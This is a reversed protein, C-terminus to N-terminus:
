PHDCEAMIRDYAQRAHDYAEAAGSRESNRIMPNKVEWLKDVCHRCWEASLRSARIMKGGLEVFVPYTHVSPLIRLAIWSSRDVRASFNVQRPRGDALLRQKEVARGNVVLEVAVYRTNGIRAKELHWGREPIPSGEDFSNTLQEPEIELRAAV